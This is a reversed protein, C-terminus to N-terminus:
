LAKTRRKPKYPLYLDELEVKTLCNEIKEKLEDTLKGQEEISKIIESKREELESYYKFLRQIDYVKVEDLSGTLEKRYRAIFPVTNGAQLLNVTNSIQQKSISLESSIQKIVRDSINGM